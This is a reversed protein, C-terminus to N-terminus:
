SGVGSQASTPATTPLERPPLTDTLLVRAIVHKAFSRMMPGIHSGDNDFRLWDADYPIQILKAYAAARDKPVCFNINGASVSKVRDVTGFGTTGIALILTDLNSNFAYARHKVHLLARSLDHKPSLASAILVLDDVQVDDPLKELAWVAIGTGASHSTLIIPQDPHDHRQQEIMKAVVTSQQDHRAVNILSVIGRDTGTWDYINISAHLGGDLLGQTMLRDVFMKGGIGPLHLLWIARDNESPQTTQGSAIPLLFTLQVLIVAFTKLM